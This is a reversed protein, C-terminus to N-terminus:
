KFDAVDVTAGSYRVARNGLQNIVDNTLIQDFAIVVVGQAFMTPNWKKLRIEVVNELQKNRPMVGDVENRDAGIVVKFHPHLEGAVIHFEGQVVECVSKYLAEAERMQTPSLSFDAHKSHHVSFSGDSSTQALSASALVLLTAMVKLM